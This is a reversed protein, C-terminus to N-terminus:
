PPPSRPWGSSRRPRPSPLPRPRLAPAGGPLRRAAPGARGRPSVLRLVAAEAVRRVRAEDLTRPAARDALPTRSGLARWCKLEHTYRSLPPGGALGAPGGRRPRSFVPGRAGTGAGAAGGH